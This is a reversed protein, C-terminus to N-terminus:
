GPGVLTRLERAAREPEDLRRVIEERSAMGDGGDDARCEILGLILRDVSSHMFTNRRGSRSGLTM